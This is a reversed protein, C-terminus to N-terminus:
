QVSLITGCQTQVNKAYGMVATVTLEDNGDLENLSMVALEILDKNLEAEADLVESALAAGQTIEKLAGGMDAAGGAKALTTQFMTCALVDKEYDQRPKVLTGYAIVGGILAVSVVSVGIVAWKGGFKKKAAATQENSDGINKSM